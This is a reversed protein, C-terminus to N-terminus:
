RVPAAVTQAPAKEFRLTLALSSGASMPGKPAIVMLHMGGPALSVAKGKPLAVGDELKRMRMVGGTMDMSHVEVSSAGPTEVAILRDDTSATLTIYCAGTLAGAPAARCWPEAAAVSPPAGQAKDCAALIPLALLLTLIAPKM